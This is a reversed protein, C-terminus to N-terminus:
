NSFIANKDSIIINDKEEIEKMLNNLKSRSFNLFLFLAKLIDGLDFYIIQHKKCYNVVKRENTVIIGKREQCIVISDREGKSLSLPIQNIKVKENTTLPIQLLKKKHLLDIVNNVFTYGKNKAMMIEDYVNPSIYFTDTNFVDYLLNLKEIKSFTSIINTDLLIM